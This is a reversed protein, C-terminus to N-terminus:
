CTVILLLRNEVSFFYEHMMVLLSLQFNPRRECFRALRRPLCFGSCILYRCFFERYHIRSPHQVWLSFQPFPVFQTDLVCSQTTDEYKCGPLRRCQAMFNSIANSVVDPDPTQGQNVRKDNGYNLDELYQSFIPYEDISYLLNPWISYGVFLPEPRYMYDVNSCDSATSVSSEVFAQMNAMFNFDTGIVFGCRQSLIPQQPSNHENSYFTSTYKLLSKLQDIRLIDPKAAFKGVDLIAQSWSIALLVAQIKKSNLNTDLGSLKKELGLKWAALAVLAIALSGAV